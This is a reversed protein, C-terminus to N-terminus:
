PVDDFVPASIERLDEIVVDWDEAEPRLAEVGADAPDRILVATMGV